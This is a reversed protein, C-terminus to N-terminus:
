FRFMRRFGLDLWLHSIAGAIFFLINLSYLRAYATSVYVYCLFWVTLPVVIVFWLRHCLGRHPVLLPLFSVISICSCAQYKKYLACFILICFISYYFYRQGRSKTDIDPFLSGALCCILLEIAKILSVPYFTVRLLYLLIAGVCLGGVLHGKYSPM